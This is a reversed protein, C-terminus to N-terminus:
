PAAIRALVEAPDTLPLAVILGEGSRPFVGTLRTINVQHTVLVVPAGSPLSDLTRRLAATQQEARERRVFFSDLAPLPQVPGLAMEAATELARCWRSSFLRPQEIGQARLLQGWRRAEARGRSDLNRQSACDDLVFGPPDGLGPATAHRILLVARGERLADWARSQVADGATANVALCALLVVLFVLGRM